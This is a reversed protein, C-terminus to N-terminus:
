SARDRNMDETATGSCADGAAHRRGRGLAGLPAPAAEGVGRAAGAGGRGRHLVQQVLM